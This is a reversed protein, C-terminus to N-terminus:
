VVSKRDRRIQSDGIWTALNTDARRTQGFPVLADVTGNGRRGRGTDDRRRELRCLFTVTSAIADHLQKAQEKTLDDSTM